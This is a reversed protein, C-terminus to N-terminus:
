FDEFLDNQTNTLYLRFMMVLLTQPSLTEEALTQLVDL